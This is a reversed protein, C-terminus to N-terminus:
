KTINITRKPKVVVNHFMVLRGKKATCAAPSRDTLNLRFRKAFTICGKRASKKSLGTVTRKGRFYFGDAKLEACKNAAIYYWGHTTHVGYSDYIISAVYLKKATKNCVKSKPLPMRDANALQSGALQVVAFALALVLSKLM